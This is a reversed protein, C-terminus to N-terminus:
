PNSLLLASSSFLVLLSWPWDTPKGHAEFLGVVQRIAAAARDLTAAELTTLPRLLGHSAKYVENCVTEAYDRRLEATPHDALAAHYFRQFSFFLCCRAAARGLELAREFCKLVSEAEFFWFFM